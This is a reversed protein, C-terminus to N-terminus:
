EVEERQRAIERRIANIAWSLHQMAAVGESRIPRGPGHAWPQLLNLTHMMEEWARELDALSRATLAGDPQRRDRAGDQRHV